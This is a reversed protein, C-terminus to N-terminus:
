RVIAFGVRLQASRRVNYDVFEEGYGNFYQVYLYGSIPGFKLDRTRRSLDVQLSGHGATGVRGLASVMWNGGTDYRVRWDVPGRYKQIDPNEEKDIYRIIRPAFELSGGGVPWRWEPQVFLMNVSRSLPGDRGNSEHEAGVRAGDIWTRADTREWKWFLSPRYSTDRLAKSESSLDWLSTQTYAFYFGALWPREQGFGSGYDFLRYKFSLQFRTTFGDRAGIVAYIPEHESLPPEVDPDTRDTLAQVADRKAVLLVLVNSTMEELELSATGGVSSPMIGSYVRRSGEAPGLPHLRLIIESAAARLRVSIEEPLTERPPAILVLDFREGAVARGQTSALLWDPAAAGAPLAVLAFVLIAAIRIM